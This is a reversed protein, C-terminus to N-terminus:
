VTMTKIDLHISVLDNLHPDVFITDIHTHVNSQVDM